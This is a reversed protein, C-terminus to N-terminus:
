GGASASATITYVNISFFAVITHNATVNTFSHNTVAGQNAGDVVVSDIHFGTNPAITFSQNAGHNVSVAGSPTISGGASASATITYVNISFFAAITHNATVNTFSHNTVAGQNSGDVVVSDIHFGTSPAITFSQNAGHNVSVAGSPTITGGA